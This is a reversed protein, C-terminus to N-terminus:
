MLVSAKKWGKDTLVLLRLTYEEKVRVIEDGYIEKLEKIQTFKKARNSMSVM